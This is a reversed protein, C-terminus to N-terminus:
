VQDDDARDHQSANMVSRAVSDAEHESSDEAAGVTMPGASSMTRQQAVHTVEHALLEQGSSSSPSYQDSRVFVDDGTTFAKAGLSHNLDDSESGVHVRVGDLSAGLAPEMRGRTGSDLASGGGRSADIRQAVAAPVPGGAAGMPGDHKAQVSGEEPDEEPESERQVRAGDVLRQVAANGLASGLAGLEGSRTSAQPPVTVATTRVAGLERGAVEQDRRLMPRDLSPGEFSYDSVMGGMVLILPL